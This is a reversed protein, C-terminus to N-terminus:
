LFHTIAIAWNILSFGLLAITTLIFLPWSRSRFWKRVNTM